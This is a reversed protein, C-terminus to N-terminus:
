AKPVADLRAALAAAAPAALPLLPPRVAAWAPDQRHHAVLAKVAPVVPHACVADVLGALATPAAGGAVIRALTAPILNAMGSIAGAGGLPAARALLREDGILIDLDPEALLARASEWDGSSDKVGLIAPGFAAKLRRILPLSLPVGTVGPIHYLILQPGGSGVAEILRAYWAFLGEDPVPRFYFPPTALLRRAGLALAARAQAIATELAPAVLATVIAEAPVGAALVGEHLAAREAPGLSAGEGTTGFLTVGTCGEDLLRRAHRGARAPDPAGAADFPTVLAASIGFRGPARAAPPPAPPLTM